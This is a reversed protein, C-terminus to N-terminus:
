DMLYYELKQLTLVETTAFKDNFPQIGYELYIEAMWGMMRFAM